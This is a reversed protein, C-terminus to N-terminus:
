RVFEMEVDGNLRVFRLDLRQCKHLHNGHVLCLINCCRRFRNPFIMFQVFTFRFSTNKTFTQIESTLVFIVIEM